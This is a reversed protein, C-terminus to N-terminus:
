KRLEKLCDETFKLVDEFDEKSIEGNIIKNSNKPLNIKNGFKKRFVKLLDSKKLAGENILMARLFTKFIRKIGAPLEEQEEFVNRLMYHKVEASLMEFLHQNTLNIKLNKLFNKGFLVKIKKDQLISKFLFSYQPDYKAHLRGKDIYIITISLKGKKKRTGVGGFDFVIEPYKKEFEKVIEILKLNENTPIVEKNSVFMLDIDNFDKSYTSSGFQIIGLLDLEKSCKKVLENLVNKINM